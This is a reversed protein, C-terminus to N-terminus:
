FLDEEGPSHRVIPQDNITVTKKPKNYSNIELGFASATNEKSGVQETSFVSGLKLSFLSQLIPFVTPLCNFKGMDEMLERHHRNARRQAARAAIDQTQKRLNTKNTKPLGASLDDNTPSTTRTKRRGAGAAAAGENNNLPVDVSDSSMSVLSNGKALIRSAPDFSFHSYSTPKGNVSSADQGSPVNLTLDDNLRTFLNHDSLTRAGPLPNPHNRRAISNPLHFSTVSTSASTLDEEAIQSLFPLTSPLATKGAGPGTM